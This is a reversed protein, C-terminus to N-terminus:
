SRLGGGGSGGSGGHNSGDRLDKSYTRESRVYGHREYIAGVREPSLNEFAMMSLITAGVTRAGSELANLLATGTGANRHEPEIWWFLEAGVKYDLNGLAPMFLAGASGVVKGDVEVVYLVGHELMMASYHVVASPAYPIARAYPTLNWFAEGMEAIRAFDGERAPRILM